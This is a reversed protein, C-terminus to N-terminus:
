QRWIFFSHNEDNKHLKLYGEVEEQYQICLQQCELAQLFKSIDFQFLRQPSPMENGLIRTETLYEWLTSGGIYAYLQPINNHVSLLYLDISM